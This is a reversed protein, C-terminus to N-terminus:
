NKKENTHLRNIRPAICVGYIMREKGNACIFYLHVFNKVDTLIIRISTGLKIQM